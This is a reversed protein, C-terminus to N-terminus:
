DHARECRRSEAVTHYLRCGGCWVVAKWKFDKLFIAQDQEQFEIPMSLWCAWDNEGPVYEYRLVKVAETWRVPAEGDM